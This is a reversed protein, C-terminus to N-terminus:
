YIFDDKLPKLQFMCKKQNEFLDFVSKSFFFLILNPSNSLFKFFFSFLFVSSQNLNILTDM